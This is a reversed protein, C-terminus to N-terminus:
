KDGLNPTVQIEESVGLTSPKSLRVRRVRYNKAIANQASRIFKGTWFGTFLVTPRKGPTLKVVLTKEEETRQVATGQLEQTLEVATIKNETDATM